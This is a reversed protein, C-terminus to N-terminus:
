QLKYAGAQAASVGLIVTDGCWDLYPSGSICFSHLTESDVGAVQTLFGDALSLMLLAYEARESCILLAREGDPSLRMAHILVASPSQLENKVLEAVAPADLSPVAWYMDPILLGEDPRLRLLNSYRNEGQISNSLILAHGSEGCYQMSRPYFFLMRQTFDTVSLAYGDETSTIHVLGTFDNLKQTDKLLLFSGDALQALHPWYTLDEWTHLVASDLTELEYQMLSFRAGNLSGMVVAYLYRSDASFLATLVVGSGEKTIKNSYSALLFMEGTQMDIVIPDYIFQVMQVVRSQNVIAAYRGDPSWILGESGISQAGKSAVKALNGYADAAGRAESVVVPLTRGDEHRITLTNGASYLEVRGDPSVSVPTAEEMPSPIASLTDALAACPLLLVLLLAILRHFM